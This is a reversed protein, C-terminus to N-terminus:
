NYRYDTSVNVYDNKGNYKDMMVIPTDSIDLFNNAREYDDKTWNMVSTGSIYEFVFYQTEIEDDNQKLYVNHVSYSNMGKIKVILPFNVLTRHQEIKDTNIIM